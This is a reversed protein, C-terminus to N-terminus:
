PSPAIINGLDRFSIIVVKLHVIERLSRLRYKSKARIHAIKGTARRVAILM